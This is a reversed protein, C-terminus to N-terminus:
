IMWYDDWLCVIRMGSDLKGGATVMGYVVKLTGDVFEFCTSQDVAM